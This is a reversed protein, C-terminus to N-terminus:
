LGRQHAFRREEAIHALVMRINEARNERGVALSEDDAVVVTVDGGDVHRGTESDALREVRRGYRDVLQEDRRVAPRDEDAVVISRPM